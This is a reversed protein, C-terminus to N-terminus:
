ITCNERFGMAQNETPGSTFNDNSNDCKNQFKRIKNALGCENNLITKM